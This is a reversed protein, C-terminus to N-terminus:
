KAVAASLASGHEVEQLVERLVRALEKNETQASLLGLARVVSLGSDVMTALQRTAVATEALKVRNTFGPISIEKRVNVGSKPTVAVPMYGMERLKGVVLALSDGELQGQVLKGARDRVKYDFTLAM